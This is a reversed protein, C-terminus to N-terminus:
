NHRHAAGHPAAAMGPAAPDVLGPVQRFRLHIAGPPRQPRSVQPGDPVPDHGCGGWPNCRCIRRAAMWGGRFAGHVRLAEIAYASCTPTFRCRGMPGFVASKLPSLVVRYARVCFILIAQLLNM